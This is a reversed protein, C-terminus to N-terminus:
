MALTITAVAPILSLAWGVLAARQHHRNARRMILLATTAIVLDAVIALMLATALGDGTDCGDIRLAALIAFISAAAAHVLLGALLNPILRTWPRPSGAAYEVSVETYAPAANGCSYRM